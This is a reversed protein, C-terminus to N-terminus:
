NGSLVKEFDSGSMKVHGIFNQLVARTSRFNERREHKIIPMFYCDAVQTPLQSYFLGNIIAKTLLCSSLFDQTFFREDYHM